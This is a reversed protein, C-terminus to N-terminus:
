KSVRGAFAKTAALVCYGSGRHGSPRKVRRFQVTLELVGRNSFFRGVRGVIGRGVQGGLSGRQGWPGLREARQHHGQDAHFVAEVLRPAGHLWRAPRSTSVGAARQASPATWIGTPPM